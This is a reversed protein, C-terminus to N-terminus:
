INLFDDDLCDGIGHWYTYVGLIEGRYGIELAVTVHRYECAPWGSARVGVKKVHLVLEEVNMSALRQHEEGCIDKCYNGFANYFGDKTKQILQQEEVYAQLMKIVTSEM